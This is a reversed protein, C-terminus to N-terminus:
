CLHLPPGQRVGVVYGAAGGGFVAGGARVARVEGCRLLYCLEVFVEVAKNTVTKVTNTHFYVSIFPSSPFSM